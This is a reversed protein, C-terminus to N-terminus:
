FQKQTHSSFAQALHDWFFLFACGTPEACNIPRSKFPLFHVPKAVLLPNAKFHCHKFRVFISYISHPYIYVSILSPCSDQNKIRSRSEQFQEQNQNQFCTLILISKSKSNSILEHYNKINIKFLHKSIRSKFISKSNKVIM